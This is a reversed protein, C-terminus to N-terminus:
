SMEKSHIFGDRGLVKCFNVVKFLTAYSYNSGKNVEHILSTIRPCNALNNERIAEILPKGIDMRMGRHSQLVWLSQSQTGKSQGIFNM